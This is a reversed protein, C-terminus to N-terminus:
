FNVPGCQEYSESTPSMIMKELIERIKERDRQMYYKHLLFVAGISESIYNLSYNIAKELLGPRAMLDVKLQDIKNSILGGLMKKAVIYDPKIEIVQILTEVLNIYDENKQLEPVRLLLNKVREDTDEQCYIHGAFFLVM